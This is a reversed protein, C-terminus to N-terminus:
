FPWSHLVFLWMLTVSDHERLNSYNQKQHAPTACREDATGCWIRSGGPIKGGSASTALRTSIPDSPQPPWQDKEGHHAGRCDQICLNRRALTGGQGAHPCGIRFM